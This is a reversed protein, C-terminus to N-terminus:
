RIQIEIIGPVTDSLIKSHIFHFHYKSTDYAFEAQGNVRFVFDMKGQFHKQFRGIVDLQLNFSSVADYSILQGAAKSLTSIKM